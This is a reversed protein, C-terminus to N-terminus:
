PCEPPRNRLRDAAKGALEAPKGKGTALALLTGREHLLELTAVADPRLKAPGNEAARFLRYRLEVRDLSHPRDDFRTCQLQRALVDRFAPQNTPPGALAVANDVWRYIDGGALDADAFYDLGNGRGRNYLHRLEVRDAQPLAEFAQRAVERSGGLLLALAADVRLEPDALLKALKDQAAAGLGHRGLARAAQHRIGQPVKPAVLDLLVQDLGDVRRELLGDLLCELELRDPKRRSRSLRAIRKAIKPADKPSAVWALAFCADPSSLENEKEGVHHLLPDVARSDGWESLGEAAGGGLAGLAQGLLAFHGWTMSTTTVDVGKPRRRLQKLLIPWAKPDRLMGSCRLADRAVFWPELTSPPADRKPLPEPPDAWARFRDVIAPTRVRMAALAAMGDADPDPMSAIWHFLPQEASARLAALAEPHLVALDEILQAAVVREHDGHRLAAEPGNDDAYLRLPDLGLRDVLVPLARLDGLEALAFATEVQFHASEGSHKWDAHRSLYAALADAGRPDALARIRDMIQQKKKWRAVRGAIAQAAELEAVRQAPPSLKPAPAPAAPAPPPGVALFPHSAAKPPAAGCGTAFLALLVACTAVRPSM